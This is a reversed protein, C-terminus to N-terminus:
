FQIPESEPLPETQKDVHATAEELADFVRFYGRAGGWGYSEAVFKGDYKGRGATVTHAGWTTEKRYLAKSM